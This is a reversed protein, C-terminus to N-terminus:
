DMGGAVIFRVGGEVLSTILAALDTM